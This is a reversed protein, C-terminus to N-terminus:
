FDFNKVMISKKENIESNKWVKDAQDAVVIAQGGPPATTSNLPIKVDYKIHLFSSM